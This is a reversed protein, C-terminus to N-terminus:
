GQCMYVTVGRQFDFFSIIGNNPAVESVFHSVSVTILNVTWGGSKWDAVNVSFRIQSLLLLCIM